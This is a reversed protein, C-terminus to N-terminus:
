KLQNRIGNLQHALKMSEQFRDPVTQMIDKTHWIHLNIQALAIVLLILQADVRVKTDALIADLDHEIRDMEAAFRAAASGDALVSTSRIVSRRKRWRLYCGTSWMRQSFSIAFQRAM